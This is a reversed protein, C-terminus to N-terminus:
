SRAPPLHMSPQFANMEDYRNAHRPHNTAPDECDGFLHSLVSANTGYGCPFVVARETGLFEALTRDLEDLICNNGGVMRSASASCGFQDIAAKAATVVEPHGTLGLYDFSTFSICQRGQITAIRSNVANNSRLFPNVLGASTLGDMNGLRYVHFYFSREVPSFGKKRPEADIRKKFSRYSPDKKTLPSECAFM